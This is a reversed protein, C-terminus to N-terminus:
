DKGKECIKDLSAKISMEMQGSLSEMDMKVTLVLIEKISIEM